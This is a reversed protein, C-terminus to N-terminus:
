DFYYRVYKNNGNHEMNNINEDFIDTHLYCYNKNDKKRYYKNLYHYHSKSYIKDELYIYRKDEFIINETPKDVVPNQYQKSFLANKVM